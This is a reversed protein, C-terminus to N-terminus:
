PGRGPWVPGGMHSLFAADYRFGWEAVSPVTSEYNDPLGFAKFPFRGRWDIHYGILSRAPNVSVMEHTVITSETIAFQQRLMEILLRGAARQGPTLEVQPRRTPRDTTAAAMEFAVGIFSQNLQLYLDGGDAWISNGAHHAYEAEPVIRYVRGFRDITFNYPTKRRISLLLNRGQDRIRENNARSFAAIHSETSHLVIGVPRDGWRHTKVNGSADKQLVPYFRRRTSTRYDNLIQLGNSYLEIPGNAEM